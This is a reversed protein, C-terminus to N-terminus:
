QRDDPLRESGSRHQTDDTVEITGNSILPDTNSCSARHQKLIGIIYAQRSRKGRRKDIFKDLSPPLLIEM